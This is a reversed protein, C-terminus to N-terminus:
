FAVGLAFGLDVLIQTPEDSYYTGDEIEESLPFSVGANLRLVFGSDKGWKTAHLGSSFALLQLNEHPSTGDNNKFAPRHFYRWGATVPLEMEWSIGAKHGPLPFSYGLRAALDGGLGHISAWFAANTEFLIRYPFRFAAQAGVLLVVPQVGNRLSITAMPAQVLLAISRSNQPPEAAAANSSWLVLASVVVPHVIRPTQMHRPIVLSRVMSATAQMICRPELRLGDDAVFSAVNATSCITVEHGAKQLGLGLGVYPQVDDRTESTIMFVKM